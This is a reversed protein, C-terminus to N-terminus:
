IGIGGNVVQNAKPLNKIESFRQKGIQSIFGMM